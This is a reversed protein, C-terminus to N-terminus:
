MKYRIESKEWVAGTCLVRMTNEMEVALGPNQEIGGVILLAALISFNPMALGLCKGTTEIDEGRSGVGLKGVGRCYGPGPAM